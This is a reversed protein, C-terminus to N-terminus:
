GNLHVSVGEVRIIACHEAILAVQVAVYTFMSRAVHVMAALVSLFLSASVVLNECMARRGHRAQGDVVRGGTVPGRASAARWLLLPRSCEAVCPRTVNSRPSGSLPARRKALMEDDARARWGLEGGSPLRRKQTGTIAETGAGGLSPERYQLPLTGNSMDAPAMSGVRATRAAADRQGVAGENAQKSARM